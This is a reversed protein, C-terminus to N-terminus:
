EFLLLAGGGADLQLGVTGPGEGLVGYKKTERNFLKTTVNRTIKLKVSQEVYANHNALYAADTKTHNYKAMSMVFEGAEPQIWFDAPFQYKDLCPPYAKGGEADQVDRNNWDKTWPTSYFNTPLGVRAVEERLPEIWANVDAVDKGIQNWEFTGMNMMRSGIHWLGARLGFCISTNQIYLLRYPNGRGPLGADTTLYRGLRNGHLKAANWAALLDRFNKHPGRKWSFNYFSVLDSEALANMSSNQYTGSWTAHTPDWKHVNRIDRTRGASMKGFRDQWISYAAITPDGRLKKGLAVCEDPNRYVHHGEALLDVVMLVNHKKCLALRQDTYRCLVANFRGESTIVELLEEFRAPEKPMPDNDISAAYGNMFVTIYTKL